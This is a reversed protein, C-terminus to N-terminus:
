LPGTKNKNVTTTIEKGLTGDTRTTGSELYIHVEESGKFRKM